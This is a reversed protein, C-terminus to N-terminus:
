LAHAAEMQMVDGVHTYFLYFLLDDGYKSVTVPTM